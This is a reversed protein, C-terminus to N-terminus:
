VLDRREMPYGVAELFAQVEAPNPRQGIRRSASKGAVARALQSKSMKSRGKIDLRRAEEYLKERERRV